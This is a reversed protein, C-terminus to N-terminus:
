CISVSSEQRIGAQCLGKSGASSPLTGEDRGRRARNSHGDPELSSLNSAVNDNAPLASAPEGGAVSRPGGATPLQASITRYHYIETSVPLPERKRAFVPSLGDLQLWCASPGVQGSQSPCSLGYRPAALWGGMRNPGKMNADGHQSLHPCSAQNFFLDDQTTFGKPAPQGM